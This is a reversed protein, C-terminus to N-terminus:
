SLIFTALVPLHDSADSQITKVSRCTKALAETVFVHDIRTVDISVPTLTEALRHYLEHDRGFNFDGVLIVHQYISKAKKVFTEIKRVNQPQVPVKYTVHVNAFLIVHGNAEFVTWVLCRDDALPVRGSQTATVGRLINRNHLLGRWGGDADCSTAEMKAIPSCGPNASYEQLGVVHARSSHIVDRIQNGSEFPQHDSVSGRADWDLTGFDANLCEQVNYTLVNLQFVEQLRIPMDDHTMLKKSVPRLRGAADLNFAQNKNDLITWLVLTPNNEDYIDLAHNNTRLRLPQSPPIQFITADAVTDTWIRTQWGIFKLFQHGTTLVVTKM